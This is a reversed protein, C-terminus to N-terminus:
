PSNAEPGFKQRLYERREREFEEFNVKQEPTLVVLIQEHLNSVNAFVRSATEKRIVEVQRMAQDIMPAIKQAQDPTLSLRSQFQARLRVGIEAPPVPTVPLRRCVQWAILAGSGGGALFLALVYVGLKGKGLSNM